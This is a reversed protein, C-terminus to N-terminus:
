RKTEALLKRLHNHSVECGCSLHSRHGDSTLAVHLETIPIEHGIGCKVMQTTQKIEDKSPPKESIAQMARSMIKRYEPQETVDKVGDETFLLGTFSELEDAQSNGDHGPVCCVTFGDPDERHTEKIVIEFRSDKTTTIHRLGVTHLKGQTKRECFDAVIVRLAEELKLPDPCHIIEGPKGDFVSPDILLKFAGSMFARYDFGEGADKIGDESFSTFPGQWTQTTIDWILTGSEDPSTPSFRIYSGDASFSWTRTEILDAVPATDVIAVIKQGSIETACLLIEPIPTFEDPGSWYRSAFMLRYLDRTALSSLPSTDGAYRVLIVDKPLANRIPIVDLCGAMIDGSVELIRLGYDLAIDTDKQSSMVTLLDDVFPM